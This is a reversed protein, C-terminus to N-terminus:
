FTSTISVAVGNSAPVTRCVGGVCFIGQRQKGYSMSIRHPGNTYGATLLFYHLKKSEVPNGYNYQDLIAIFIHTNPTWEIMGVAWSGLNLTDSNDRFMAQAEFRIASNSKYKYTVDAVIINSKANKYKGKPTNHQVINLNNFQNCLM